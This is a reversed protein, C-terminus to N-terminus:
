LAAAMRRRAALALAESFTRAREVVEEPIHFLEPTAKGILQAATYGLMREAARNFVTIIGRSDTGIIARDANDLIARHLRLDDTM